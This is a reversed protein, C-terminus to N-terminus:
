PVPTITFTISTEAEGGTGPKAKDAIVKVKISTTVPATVKKTTFLFYGYKPGPPIKFGDPMTIYTPDFSFSITTGYPNAGPKDKEDL